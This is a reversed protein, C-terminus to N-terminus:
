KGLCAPRRLSNPVAYRGTVRRQDGLDVDLAVVDFELEAAAPEAGEAVIGVGFTSAGTAALVRCSLIQFSLQLRGM